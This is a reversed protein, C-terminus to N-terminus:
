SSEPIPPAVHSFIVPSDPSDDAGTGMDETVFEDSEPFPSPM